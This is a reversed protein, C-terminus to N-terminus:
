VSFAAFGLFAFIFSSKKIKLGTFITDKRSRVMSNLMNRCFVNAFFPLLWLESSQDLNWDRHFIKDITEFLTTFLVEVKLIEHFRFEKIWCTNWTLVSTQRFIKRCLNLKTKGRLNKTYSVSFSLTNLLNHNLTAYVSRPILM